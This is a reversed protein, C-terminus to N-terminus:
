EGLEGSVDRTHPHAPAEVRRLDIFFTTGVGEQSRFSIDGGANELVRKVIALGLGMGSNKTSFSPEFIRKQVEPSIGAGNDKIEVRAREEFIRMSIQIIGNEEIAQLANKIINNFCRSLQDRDAQTWFAEEPIDVLWIAKESQTYLDVVELLVDNVRLTTKVPEPMKAFEHFSNAIRVLSDIQVMLSNMIKPFMKEFKAPNEKQAKLIHQINLRMPTLPNKIEHAVQRAMSRWAAERQTTALKEESQELQELMKNYADVIEGIEDKSRYQIRENTDGLITASLRQQILTLPQTITSSIFVALVNILLFVLLYINALYALFDIVQNELRDQQTLYPINVFGVPEGNADLLPRYASLYELSGIRERIVLESLKGNILSDLAVENMLDSSIGAEAIFPQTSTIRLGRRDYINIDDSVYSALEGVRNEFARVATIRGFRDKTMLTYAPEILSTIRRTEIGLEKKADEYYRQSVFPYLLVIIVLMPLVSITILGFRIKTRLPLSTTIRRRRMWRLILIPITIFILSALNFFYFIISFTTIVEVFSQRPYRVVVIRGGEFPELYESYKGRIRNTKGQIQEFNDMNIPFVGDGRRTYLIGDRYVAHNMSSILQLDDFMSQEMSLSPYLGDVERNIPRLEVLVEVTQSSDQGLEIFFSGVFFDSYIGRPHPLQYLPHQMTLKISGERNQLPFPNNPDPGFESGPLDPYFPSGTSDYLFTEVNFGKFYPEIYESSLGELFDRPNSAFHHKAQIESLDRQIRRQAKAFNLVTTTSQSKKVREAIQVAKYQLNIHVGVVVNYTVVLSIVTTLLLYNVLNQKLIHKLPDRYIIVMYIAISFTVVLSAVWSSPHLLQNVLGTFALQIVFYLIRKPHNHCYLINVRLMIIALLTISFLLTGVDLLILYSFINTKFINSFEIDVKSNLTIAEFVDIYLKFLLSVLAVNGLLVPWVLHPSRSLKRGWLVGIRLLHTYAIYILVSFTLINITLEGLSPALFHFALISPSFLQIDLYDGPFDIAYLLVRIAVTVGILIWNVTFKRTSHSIVYWRLGFLFVFLALIFTVIAGYRVPLRFPLTPLNGLYLIPRASNDFIQIGSEPDGLTGVEVDINRLYRQNPDSLRSLWEGLFIFPSLFENDVEYTIYLPILTIRTIGKERNRIQYYTRNKLSIIRDSGINEIREIKDQTPLYSTNTWDALRGNPGYELTCLYCGEPASLEPNEAAKLCDEFDSQIDKQVSNLLREEGIAQDYVYLVISSFLLIGAIIFWPTGQRLNLM